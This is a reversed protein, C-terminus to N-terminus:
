VPRSIGIIAPMPWVGWITCWCWYEKYNFSVKGELYTFFRLFLEYDESTHYFSLQDKVEGLLYNSYKRMFSADKIDSETFVKESDEHKEVFNEKLIALMSIIDRPRYMSLRLFEIFSADNREGTMLHESKYPFYFDWAEGQALNIDKAQQSSFLKDALHFIDSSRYEAYTTIWDLVVSNDKIKTSQNQLGCSDFIDPRLLLVVRLRGKSDRISPFIDNNLSWIANALGKVCELYENYSLSSPRIDVGDIFLIHNKELKLNAFAERFKKELYLLNIQLRNESFTNTQEKGASVKAYKAVLEAAMKSQEIFNLAVSLEPSFADAYFEDIAKKLNKFKIYNTIPAREITESQSIQEALLLYILVKWISTYDSLTIMQQSKLQVFKQYESERIFSIYSQFVTPNGRVSYPSNSLYVAHATKGTGKEGILFYINHKCLQDLAHTRIFVEGFLKKEERRRYNEADNYGLNLDQIRKMKM